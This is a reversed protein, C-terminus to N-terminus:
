QTGKPMNSGSLYTAASEQTTPDHVVGAMSRGWAQPLRGIHTRSLFCSAVNSSSSTALCRSGLWRGELYRGGPTM